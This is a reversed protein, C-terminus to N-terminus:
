LPASVKPPEVTTDAGNLQPATIGLAVTEEKM